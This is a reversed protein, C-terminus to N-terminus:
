RRMVDAPDTWCIPDLAEAGDLSVARLEIVPPEGLVECAARTLLDAHQDAIWAQKFEDGVELVVREDDVALCRLVAPAFWSGFNHASVMGELVELVGRWVTPVEHEPPEDPGLSADPTVDDVTDPADKVREAQEDHVSTPPEPPEPTQEVRTEQTAEEQSEDTSEDRVEHRGPVNGARSADDEASKQNPAKTVGRSSTDRGRVVVLGDVIRYGWDRLDGEDVLYTKAWRLEPRKARTGMEDIRDLAYKTAIRVPMGLLNLRKLVGQADRRTATPWLHVMAEHLATVHEDQSEDSADPDAISSSESSSKDNINEQDLSDRSGGGPSDRKSQERSERPYGLVAEAEAEFDRERLAQVLRDVDVRYYKARGPRRQEGEIYGSDELRRLSDAVTRSPICLPEALWRASAQVWERGQRRSLYILQQLVIADDTTRCVARYGTRLVATVEPGDRRGLPRTFDFREHNDGQIKTTTM